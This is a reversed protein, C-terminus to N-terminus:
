KVKAKDGEQIMSDNHHWSTCPRSLAKTRVLLLCPKAEEVMLEESARLHSMTHLFISDPQGRVRGNHFLRLSQCASTNHFLCKRCATSVLNVTTLLRERPPAAGNHSAAISINVPFTSLSFRPVSEPLKLICM